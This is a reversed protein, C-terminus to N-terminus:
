TYDGRNHIIGDGRIHGPYHSGRKLHKSYSWHIGDRSYEQVRGSATHVIKTHYSKPKYNIALAYWLILITIIALIILILKDM